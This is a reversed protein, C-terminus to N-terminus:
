VSCVVVLRVRIGVQRLGLASESERVEADGVDVAGV